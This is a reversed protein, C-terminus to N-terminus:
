AAHFRVRATAALGATLEPGLVAPLHRLLEPLRRASRRAIRSAAATSLSISMRYPDCWFVVAM